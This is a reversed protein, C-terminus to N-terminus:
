NSKQSNRFISRTSCQSVRKPPLFFCASVHAARRPITNAAFVFTVVTTTWLGNQYGSVSATGKAKTTFFPQFIRERHDPHIGPGNDAIIVRMGYSRTGWHQARGAKVILQGATRGVAELANVILNSFVQRIEGPFGKVYVRDGYRRQVNVQKFRIKHSYFQLVKDLIEHVNVSVRKDSERTFDLTQHAIHVARGLEQQALQLYTRTSVDLHPNQDILYLLNGLSELPNKIEHAIGAAHRGVEALKESSQLAQQAQSREAIKDAFLRSHTIAVELFGAMLQLAIRYRDQFANMRQYFIALAGLATQQYFLPVEAGSSSGFRKALEKYTPGEDYTPDEHHDGTPATNGLRISSGFLNADVPLALGRAGEVIGCAEQIVLHNGDFLEVAVGDARTLQLARACILKSLEGVDLEAVMIEQQVALIASLLEPTL